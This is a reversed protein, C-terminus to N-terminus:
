NLNILILGIMFRTKNIDAQKTKIKHMRQKNDETKNKNNSISSEREM